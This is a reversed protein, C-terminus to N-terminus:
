SHPLSDGREERASILPSPRSRLGSPLMERFLDSLMELKIRAAAESEKRALIGMLDSRMFWLAQPDPAYRIRRVLIASHEDLPGIMELMVERIDELTITPGEGEEGEAPRSVTSVQFLALLGSRITQYFSM